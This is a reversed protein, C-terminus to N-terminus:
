PSQNPAPIDALKKRVRSYNISLHNQKRRKCLSGIQSWQIGRRNSHAMPSGALGTVMGISIEPETLVAFDGFVISKASVLLKVVNCSEWSSCWSSEKLSVAVLELSSNQSPAALSSPARTGVSFVLALRPRRTYRRKMLSYRGIRTRRTATRPAPTRMVGKKTKLNEKGSEIARGCTSAHDIHSVTDQAHPAATDMRM